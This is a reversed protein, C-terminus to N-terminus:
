AFALGKPYVFQTKKGPKMNRPFFHNETNKAIYRPVDFYTFIADNVLDITTQEDNLPAIVYLGPYEASNILFTKNKKDIKTDFDISRPLPFSYKARLIKYQIYQVFEALHEQILILM